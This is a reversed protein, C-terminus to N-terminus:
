TQAFDTSSLNEDLANIKAMKFVFYTLTSNSQIKSVFNLYSLNKM